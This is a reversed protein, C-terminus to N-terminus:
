GLNIMAGKVNVVGSASVETTTGKVSAMAGSVSVEASGKLETKAGTVLVWGTGKLVTKVGEVSMQATGKVTTTASGLEARSPELALKSGESALAVKKKGTANVNMMADLQVDRNSTVKVGLKGNLTATGDTTLNLGKKADWRVQGTKAQVHVDGTMSTAAIGKSMDMVVSQEPSKGKGMEWHMTHANQDFVLSQVQGGRALVIGKKANKSDPAFPAKQKPNHVSGIILPDMGVFGLVVEDGPEPYFCVGSDLSAYPSALRAWLVERGLLPVTVPLRHWGSKRDAKFPAVKGMLLGAPVPVEPPQAAEDDLGVSLTTRTQRPTGGVEYGVATVLAKGSLGAGFGSVDVSDGVASPVIGELTISMQVAQAQQALLQARAGAQLLSADQVQPSVLAYSALPGTALSKIRVPDLAGTGLPCASAQKSVSAQQGIDWGTMSVQRPLTLGSFAWEMSYAESAGGGPAHAGMGMGASTAAARHSKTAPKPLGISVSGDARPWLWVGHLGMLGRVFTWDSCNWQIRQDHEGAMDQIGAVRVGHDGLVRRLVADDKGGGFVRSRTTVKLGQLPSKLRLRLRRVGERVEVQAAGVTGVTLASGGALVQVQEGVACSVVLASFAQYDDHMERPVGLELTASPIENVALRITVREVDVDKLQRGNVQVAIDVPVGPTSLDKAASGGLGDVLAAVGSAAAGAVGALAPAWQGLPEGAGAVDVENTLLDLGRDLVDSESALLDLGQSIVTSGSVASLASRAKALKDSFSSM